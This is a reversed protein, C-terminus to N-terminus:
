VDVPPQPDTEKDTIEGFIGGIQSAKVETVTVEIDLTIQEVGEGLDADASARITTVGPEDNAILKALKGSESPLVYASSGDLVEWSIVGDIKAPKGSDTRVELTVLQQQDTTFTTQLMETEKKQPKQQTVIKSIALRLNDCKTSCSKGFIIKLLKEIAVQQKSPKKPKCPKGWPKPKPRVIKVICKLRRKRSTNKISRSSM